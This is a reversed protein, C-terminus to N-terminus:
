HKEESTASRKLKSPNDVWGENKPVDAESAFIKGECEFEPEGEDHSLRYPMKTGKSEKAKAADWNRYRYIAM